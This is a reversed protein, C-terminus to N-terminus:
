TPDNDNHFSSDSQGFGTIIHFEMEGLLTYTFLRASHPLGMHQCTVISLRSIVRDLAATADYDIMVGPTLSQQSLDLFLLKNWM